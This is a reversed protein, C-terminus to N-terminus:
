GIVAFYLPIDQTLTSVKEKDYTLPSLSTYYRLTVGGDGFIDKPSYNDCEDDPLNKDTLKTGYPYAKMFRYDVEEHIQFTEEGVGDVYIQFYHVNVTNPKAEEGATTVEESYSESVSAEQIPTVSNVHSNKDEATCSFLFLPLLYLCLRKKM